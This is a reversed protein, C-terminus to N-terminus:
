QFDMGADDEPSGDGVYNKVGDEYSGNNFHGEKELKKVDEVTIGLEDATNKRLGEESTNDVWNGNEDKLCSNLIDNWDAKAKKDKVVKGNKDKVVAKDVKVTNGQTQEKYSNPVTNKDAKLKKKKNKKIKAKYTKREDASLTAAYRDDESLKKTDNDFLGSYDIGDVVFEKNKKAKVKKKKKETVKKKAIKEKLEAKKVAYSKGPKIAIAPNHSATEEKQVAPQVMAVTNSKVLEREKLEEAMVKNKNENYNTWYSAGAVFMGFTAALIVTGIVTNKKNM